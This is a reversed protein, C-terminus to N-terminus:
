ASAWMMVAATRTAMVVRTGGEHLVAGTLWGRRTHTPALNNNTHSIRYRQSVTVAAATTTTAATLLLSIPGTM